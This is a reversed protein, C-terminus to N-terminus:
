HNKKNRKLYNKKADDYMFMNCTPMCKKKDTRYIGELGGNLHPFVKMNSKSYHLYM